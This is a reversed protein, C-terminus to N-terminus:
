IQASRIDGTFRLVRRLVDELTSTQVRQVVDAFEKHTQPSVTVRAVARESRQRVWVGAYASTGMFAALLGGLEADGVRFAAELTYPLTWVFGTLNGSTWALTHAEALLSLAETVGGAELRCRAYASLILVRGLTEGSAATLPLTGRCQAEVVPFGRADGSLLVRELDAVANLARLMPQQGKSGIARAIELAEHLTETTTAYDERMLQVYGAATLLTVVDMGKPIHGSRYLAFGEALRGSAEDFRDSNTLAMSLNATIRLLRAPDGYDRALALALELHETAVDVQRLRLYAQGLINLARLAQLTSTSGTALSETALHVAKRVDGAYFELFSHSGLFAARAEHATEDDVPLAGLIRECLATADAFRGQVPLHWLLPEALASLHTYSKTELAWDLFAVLNGEESEMFALLEPSAGGSAELNLRGLVESYFRGHRERSKHLFDPDAELKKRAFAHLLAHFGYRDGRPELLAKDLLDKLADPGAGAVQLAAEKSFGGRFVALRKYLKQREGDLLQWSGEVAAHVSRHRTRVDALPTKLTAADRELEDALAELPTAGVWAPALEIGLPFGGVARCIRVVARLDARTPAFTMQARRARAIFLRAAESLAARDPDSADEPLALGALTLAWEAKLNLRERTTVLLCLNPCASLLRPLLPAAELLHELTDLVFLMRRDGITRTLAAENAETGLTQALANLLGAPEGVADLPVFFVGDEFLPGRVGEAAVELALRTKGVGGPGHVTVLRGDGESLVNILGSREAERGVFGTLLIPLNHPTRTPPLTVGEAAAERRFRGLLDSETRTLLRHLRRVDGDELPPASDLSFAAEARERAAQNKGRHLAREALTLHAERALLALHERTELLWEELEGSLHLAVDKIFPGSYLALADGYQKTKYRERFLVADCIVTTSVKDDIFVLAGSGKQAYLLATSLSDRPDRADPFFLEALYRRSKPGELALYALLLLPKPRRLTGGELSLNSFARLM